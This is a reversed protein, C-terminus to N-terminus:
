AAPTARLAMRRAPGAACRAGRQVTVTTHLTVVYRVGDVSYHLVLGSVRGRLWGDELRGSIFPYIAKGHVETPTPRVYHWRRYSEEASPPYDTLAGVPAYTSAGEFLKHLGSGPGFDVGDITVSAKAPPTGLAAMGLTFERRGTAPFCYSDESDGAEIPGNTKVPSNDSQSVGCGACLVGVVIATWPWRLARRSNM